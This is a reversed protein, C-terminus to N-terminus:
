NEEAKRVINGARENGTPYYAGTLADGHEQMRVRAREIAGRAGQHAEAHTRRMCRRRTGHEEVATAFLPLAGLGGSRQTTLRTHGLTHHCCEHALLFHAYPRDFKLMSADVVIVSRDDDTRTSSAQEPFDPLVYTRIDCYPNDVTALKRRFEFGVGGQRAPGASQDAGPVVLAEGAEEVLADNPVALVLATLGAAL